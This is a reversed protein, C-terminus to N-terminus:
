CKLLNVKTITCIITYLLYTHICVTQRKKKKKENINEEKTRAVGFKKQNVNRKNKYIGVANTYKELICHFM